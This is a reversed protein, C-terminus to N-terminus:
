GGGGSMGGWGSDEKSGGSSGGSWSGSGGWGRNGGSLIEGIIMGGIVDGANPGQTPPRYSRQIDQVADRVDAQISRAIQLAHNLNAEGTIPLRLQEFARRAGRIRQSPGAGSPVRYAQLYQEGQDLIARANALEQNAQTRLQELRQAEAYVQQYSATAEKQLDAYVTVVQQLAARRQAEAGAEAQKSLEYARKVLQQVRAIAKGNAPSIDDGHVTAFKVLKNVEATASQQVSKIQGRLKEMVEVESRAGILAEDALRNAQQANQLLELWNPRPQGMEDRALALLSEARRLAEEPQKGVDSDNGRVFEWGQAIDAAAAEVEGKASARAAELDKLRQIIADILADANQLQKEAADLSEKAAFFDQQEMTNQKTATRWHEHARDAAAQAESGNGSIDSWTPEAFEDVLDFAKRGENIYNAISSGQAEIAALRQENEARLAVLSTGNAVAEDLMTQAAKLRTTATALGQGQLAKATENLAAQAGDLAGRSREMIYGEGALRESDARGQAIGSRIALYIALATKLQSGQESAATAVRIAEEADHSALAQAARAVQQEVPALM